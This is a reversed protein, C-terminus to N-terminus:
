AEKVEQLQELMHQFVREELKQYLQITQQPNLHVIIESEEEDETAPHRVHLFFWDERGDVSTEDSLWGVEVSEGEPDTFMPFEDM